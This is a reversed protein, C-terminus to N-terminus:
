REAQPREHPNWDVVGVNTDAGLNVDKNRRGLKKEDWNKCGQGGGQKKPQAVRM